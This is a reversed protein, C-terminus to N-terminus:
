LSRCLGSEGQNLALVTGAISLSSFFQHFLPNSRFFYFSAAQKIQENKDAPRCSPTSGANKDSWGPATCDVRAWVLM